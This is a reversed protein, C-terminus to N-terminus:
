FLINMNTYDNVDARLPKVCIILNFFLNKSFDVVKHGQNPGLAFFLIGILKAPWNAIRLTLTEEIFYKKQIFDL